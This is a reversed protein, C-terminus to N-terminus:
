MKTKAQIGLLELGQFIAQAVIKLVSLIQKENETHLIKEENYFHHFESSLMRLYEVVKQPARQYFADELVKHFSLALVLLDRLSENIGELSEGQFSEFDQHSKEFLTHIRAHAYNIYYVPNSSDQKKLDEVDFELHTDAKKSLFTLRLADSGVEQAVDKLLIFNGARKSMKYTEGGKLLAVMQSLLVELKKSDYGLFEIAAKIRAIYGHHDAGWINICRDFSRQFKDRHYIIDGALYTPEGNERVIVRDKEDGYESSKIWLKQELEYVGNGRQLQELTSDWEKFLAKESVFNDFVIGIQALNEQIEELMKDKGFVSLCFINKEAEFCEQGFTEKAEKALELIYEGKYCGEPMEYSEGFYLHRGAIYISKGLNEIQAGADNIYYESVVEFGLYIGLRVLCDGFIAGRAHGIHLPGTPNASVYELLIREKTNKPSKPALFDKACEQLFGDSVSFNVYGGVVNVSAIQPLSQLTEGFERAIEQPNKKLNKALSFTPLAFHGFKKDKPKELFCEIALAKNILAKLSQYM